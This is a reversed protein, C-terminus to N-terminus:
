KTGKPKEVLTFYPSLGLEDGGGFNKNECFYIKLRLTM